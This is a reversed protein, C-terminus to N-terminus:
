SLFRKILNIDTQRFPTFREPHWMIGAIALSEHVFCEVHGDSDEALPVLSEALRDRPIGWDHYSNVWDPVVAPHNGLLKLPHDKGVHGGIPTLTGGLHMNVVQMGRCVGLVPINRNIAADILAEEFADREPAVTSSEPNLHTLDNGGSLIIADPQNAALIDPVHPQAVNPLPCPVFGIAFSLDLWRQDLCDRREGRCAVLEVRQTIALRKM